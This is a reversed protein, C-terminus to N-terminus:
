SGDESPAKASARSRPPPRGAGENAPKRRAVELPVQVERHYPIEIGEEDFRNKLRLRLEGTLEWQKFVKVDGVVKLVVSNSGLSDIRLVQPEAIVDEPRERALERGVENVVKIVRDVDEEYAIAIDLNIRSFGNTMNTAVTIASNPIIHVNGDLDRLVTRRPTLEIVQGSVGGVNVVDGVAYQDELLIFLGNIVDKVLTQAGLGLAIGVVGVGAILASVNLGFEALVLGAGVFVLLLGLAWNLTASFAHARRELAARDENHMAAARAIARSFMGTLVRRFLWHALLLLLLILVLRAAHQDLWNRWDDWSTYDFLFPMM